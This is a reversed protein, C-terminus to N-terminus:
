SMKNGLAHWVLIIFIVHFSVTHLPHPGSWVPSLHISFESWKNCTLTQTTPTTMTGTYHRMLKVSTVQAPSWNWPFNGGYIKDEHQAAKVTQKGRQADTNGCTWKGEWYLAANLRHIGAHRLIFCRAKLIPSTPCVSKHTERQTERSKNRNNEERKDNWLVNVKLNKTSGHQDDWSFHQSQRWSFQFLPLGTQQSMCHTATHIHTHTHTHIRLIWMNRGLAVTLQMMLICPWSCVCLVAVCKEVLFQIRIFSM